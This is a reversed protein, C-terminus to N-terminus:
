TTPKNDGLGAAPATMNSKKKRTATEFRNGFARLFKFRGGFPSMISRGRSADRSNPRLRRKQHSIMGTEMRALTMMMRWKRERVQPNRSWTEGSARASITGVTVLMEASGM